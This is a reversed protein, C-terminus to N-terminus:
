ELSDVSQDLMAVAQAQLECDDIDRARRYARIAFSRRDSPEGCKTLALLAETLSRDLGSRYLAPMIADFLTTAEAHLGVEAWVRALLCLSNLLAVLCYQTKFFLISALSLTSTAAEFNDRARYYSARVLLVQGEERLGLHERAMDRARATLANVYDWDEEQAAIRSECIVTEFEGWPWQQVAAVVSRAKAANQKALKLEGLDVQANCLITLSWAELIGNGQIAYAKTVEELYPIAKRAHGRTRLISGINRTAQLKFIFESARETAALADLMLTLSEPLEGARFALDAYLVRVRAEARPDGPPPMAQLFSLARDLWPRAESLGTSTFALLLCARTLMAPDSLAEIRPLIGIVLRQTIANALHLHCALEGAENSTRKYIEIAEALRAEAKLRDPGGQSGYVSCQLCDALGAEYNDARAIDTARPLLLMAHTFLATRQLVESVRVIADIAPRRDAAHDLAYGLVADLNALEPMLNAIVEPKKHIYMGLLSATLSYFYDYLPQAISEGPALYRMVYERIPALVRIRPPSSTTRYVLANQVLTTICRLNQKLHGTFLPIDTEVSGDPLLSLLSLMESADGASALRPSVLSIKISVNLSSLRTPEASRTLMVTRETTWREALSMLSEYQAMSALIVVALPLNDVFQLLKRVQPEADSDQIDAIAMFAQMAAEDDLPGLPPLFPRTWSLGVPRETGRMTLIIALNPLSDLLALLAEADERISTDDWASEFNDFVIITPESSLMQVVAKQLARTSEAHLGLEGSVISFVDHGTSVADCPVFFRRAGYKHEVGTSHLVALALSTKGVGGPGLLILRAPSTSGIVQTDRGFHVHPRPPIKSHTSPDQLGCEIIYEAIPSTALKDNLDEISRLTMIHTQLMLVQYSTNLDNQMGLIEEREKEQHLFHVLHSKRQHKQLFTHVAELTRQFEQFAELWQDSDTGGSLQDAGEALALVYEHVRRSLDWLLAKNYKTGQIIESILSATALVASLAPLGSAHGAQAALSASLASAMVALPVLELCSNAYGFCWCARNPLM